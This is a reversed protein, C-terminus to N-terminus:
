LNRAQRIERARMRIGLARELERLSAVLALSQRAGTPAGEITDECERMLSEIEDRSRGSRAAVAAAIEARPASVDAGGYRALARRTRGYVNEVALDFSRARQQLEAMSAVFELKSRRDVRPAPLPRAFRRGRTWVVAAAILFLQACIALVPTGAFYAAIQNQTVGRGQHYEDFAILGGAGAVVNAALQLNDARAIGRNAVIFPDSLVVIRGAGRAFDVLLAGREDNVHFVPAGAPPQPPAANAAQDDTAQDDTAAENDTAAEDGEGSQAIVRPESEPTTETEPAESPLAEPPTEEDDNGADRANRNNQSAADRANQNSQTAADGADENQAAPEQEGVVPAGSATPSAVGQEENTGEDREKRAAWLRSAYRSPAISAVDRTLLTPQTPALQKADRTLADADDARVDVEPMAVAQTSIRWGDSETLSADPTRDIIVLRGGAEVWEMLSRVEEEKFTLRTAGVVVFTSPRAGATARALAETPERWRMVRQGSEELFEYLARTGSAGANLTSRDPSFEMEAEQEVRVYSAANLAVLLALMVGIFIIVSFRGRM